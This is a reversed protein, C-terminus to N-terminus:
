EAIFYQALTYEDTRPIYRIGKRSGWSTAQQQIPVVATDKKILRIMDKLLEERQGNDLTQLAQGLMNDFDPNSYRGWNYAGMGTDPNNTAILARMPSSAEASTAGWGLLVMSFELKSARGVYVSFPMAEVKSQIGVQTLMQAVAQTIRSDNVFRNNPTHLTLGFGDPYGAEALLKKAAAPDYNEVTVDAAHGFISPPVLNATPLSLGEMVRDTIGQRNISKSIALRVKPDKLPNKTLPKGAKDTVFPSVDRNSDLLFMLTRHSVKSAVNFKDNLKLKGYDASPVNEIADVDGSLLAAMRGADNTLIRITVKDWPAKNGWYDDNRNLEVRDGRAFSAFKFPGTGVMGVGQDFDASKVDATAKKSVIYIATLDNPLLPHPQATQVRVRTPGDATASVIGKTYTTFPATSNTLTAPRQLSYVVDDATLESGDHFKVGPRLTFEWTTPDVTKWSVALGPQLVSDADRGVLTEFVHEMVNNNPFINGFHPDMSTIEGSVAMKFDAAHAQLGAGFLAVTAFVLSGIRGKLKGIHM